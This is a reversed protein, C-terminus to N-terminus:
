RRRAARLTFQKTVAKHDSFSIGRLCNYSGRVAELEGGSKWVIRDTWAPWHTRLITHSPIHQLEPDKSKHCDLCTFYAFGDVRKAVHYTPPFTVPLENFPNSRRLYETRFWDDKQFARGDVLAGSPNVIRNYSALSNVKDGTKVTYAVGDRPVDCKTKKRKFESFDPGKKLQTDGEGRPRVNFDGMWIVNETADLKKQCKKLDAECSKKSNSSGHINAFTIPIGNITTIARVHGKNSVMGGVGQRDTKWRTDGVIDKNAFIILRMEGLAGDAKSEYGLREHKLRKAIHRKLSGDQCGMSKGKINSEQFAFVLVDPRVRRNIIDALLYELHDDYLDKHYNALNHTFCMIHAESKEDSPRGSDEDLRLHNFM